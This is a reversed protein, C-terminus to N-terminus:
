VGKIKSLEYNIYVYKPRLGYPETSTSYDFVLKHYVAPGMAHDFDAAVVDRIRKDDQAVPDITMESYQSNTDCYGKVTVRAEDTTNGIVALGVGRVTTEYMVHGEALALDGLAFQYPIATGDMTTGNELREMYGTDIFGYNYRNGYTDEVTIGVQIYKGSTRDVEYWKKKSLVYVFEKNLTTQGSGSAFCWHYETCDDNFFGTSKDIYATNICETKKRDFYNRIDPHIAVISRGDFMYIGHTGQWIAISGNQSVNEPNINATKMTEYAACGISASVRFKQWNGETDQYVTWTENAKTFILIAYLNAGFQCYVEAAATLNRDDGFPIEFSDEGNFIDPSDQASCLATNQNILWLRDGGCFPFDFDYLGKAAPIGRAYFLQVDDSLTQTWAIYYYHLQFNNGIDRKFESTASPAEWTITGNKAMSVGDASTGDDVGTCAVWASGDWYYVGSVTTATTNVKGAAFSFSIGQQKNLFGCVIHHSTTLSDLEVFSTGDAPDYYNEQVNLTYDEYTTKYVNFSQILTNTGDWVDKIKQFPSRNTVYYIQVGSSLASVSARYWYLLKGNILKTKATSVTSSFTIAKKGTAGLTKGGSSSGDSLSSVATWSGTWHDVTMTSTSTNATQIYLNFGDLPRTSGIYLNCAADASYETSATSFTTIWRAIGVSFRVEDLWGNLTGGTGYQSGISITGSMNGLDTVGFAVYELRTISVGNLFIYGITRDRVFAVHYWVGESMTVSPAFYYGKSVGGVYFQMFLSHSTAGPGGSIMNFAYHNNADQYHEFLVITQGFTPFANVKVWTDFTFSSTGLTFDAHDAVEIYDDTGAGHYGTFYASATGYKQQATDLVMSNKATCTKTVPSSDTITTSGDVGNCHLLLKTYSDNGGPFTANLTAINDADTLTNRVQETWDYSYSGSPDHQMFAGVRWEDGGWICAEKGNAYALHGGPAMAFRGINSGSAASWLATASFDGASPIATTNQVVKAATLGTNWAEAVVHSEAPNNKRFHIASRAKLYTTLATTNIKSMGYIGEIGIDMYKYNKLVTFNEGAVIGDDATYLKGKLAIEKTKVQTDPMQLPTPDLPIRTDPADINIQM